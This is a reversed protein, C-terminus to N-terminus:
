RSRHSAGSRGLSSIAPEFGTGRELIEVSDGANNRAITAPTSLIPHTSRIAPLAGGPIQALQYRGHVKSDAHNALAMATHENVGARALGSVFDRRQVDM